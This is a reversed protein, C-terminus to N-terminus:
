KFELKDGASIDKTNFDNMEIFCECKKKPKYIEFPELVAKEVVKMSKNLFVICIPFSMFCTHITPNGRVKFLMADSKGFKKWKLYDYIYDNETKYPILGLISEYGSKRIM